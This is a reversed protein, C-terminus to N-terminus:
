VAQQALGEGERTHKQLVVKGTEKEEKERRSKKQTRGGVQRRNRKHDPNRKGVKWLIVPKTPSQIVGNPRRGVM